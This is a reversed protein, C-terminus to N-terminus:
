GVRHRHVRAPPHERKQHDAYGQRAELDQCRHPSSTASRATHSERPGSRTERRGGGSSWAEPALM